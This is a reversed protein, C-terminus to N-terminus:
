RLRSPRMGRAKCYTRLFRIRDERSIQPMPAAARALRELDAAARKDTVRGVCRLGELDLLHPRGHTDCVINTEKLDRHSFGEDHLRALLEAVGQAAARTPGRWKGLDTADKIEQMVFYSRVLFGMRRDDAAAIPRATPIGLLELHYANRFANLARSRRFLDKVLRTPRRLNFQKVVVGGGSGVISSRGRKFITAEQKLFKAPDALVARLKEDLFALRVQWTLAGIKLPAFERNHKLCRKARHRYFQKRLRESEALVEQSVPIPVFIRLQALNRAAEAPTVQTRLDTGHLDVLRMEGTKPHALINGPHLDRQLIGHAHLRRVFEVVSPWDFNDLQDLPVGDFSETILVSEQLGTASWREGLAVHRVVAIGKAELQRALKWEQRAQSSKFFFKLPRLPVASHRYRKVYYSKGTGDHRSVLKAPSEKIARAPASLLKDLFPEIEADIEWAMGDRKLRIV